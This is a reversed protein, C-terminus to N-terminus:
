GNQVVGSMSQLVVSAVLMFFCVAIVGWARKRFSATHLLFGYVFGVATIETAYVVAILFTFVAPIALASYWALFTSAAFLAGFALGFRVGDAVGHTHLRVYLWGFLLTLLLFSVYGYPILAFLEHPSKFAAYERRWFPALLSAHTFFDICVFSFWAIGTAAAFRKKSVM